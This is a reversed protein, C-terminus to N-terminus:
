LIEKQDAPLAQLFFIRSQRSVGKRPLIRHHRPWARLDFKTVPEPLLGPELCM